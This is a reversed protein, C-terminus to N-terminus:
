GCRRCAGEKSVRAMFYDIGKHGCLDSEAQWSLRSSVALHPYDIFRAKGAFFAEFLKDAIVLTYGGTNARERLMGEGTIGFDQEEKIASDLGMFSGVTVDECGFSVRLMARISNSVVQEGIILVSETIRVGSSQGDGFPLGIEYPMGWEQEM